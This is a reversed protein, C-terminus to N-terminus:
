WRGDHGHSRRSPTKKSFLGRNKSKQFECVSNSFPFVVLLNQILQSNFPFSSDCDLRLNPFVKLQQALVSSITVM